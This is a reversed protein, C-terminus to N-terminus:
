AAFRDNWVKTLHRVRGGDFRIVYVYNEALDRTGGEATAATGRFVAFLVCETGDVSTAVTKLDYHGDPVHDYLAAMWGAYAQLTSIGALAEAQCAFGADEHCWRRCVQWGAGRELADFFAIAEDHDFM